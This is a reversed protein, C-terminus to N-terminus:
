ASIKGHKMQRACSHCASKFFYVELHKANSSQLNRNCAKFDPVGLYYVIRSQSREDRYGLAMHKKGVLSVFVKIWEIRLRFGLM